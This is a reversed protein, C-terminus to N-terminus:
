EAKESLRRGAGVAYVPSRILLIPDDSPALGKALVLPDFVITDCRGESEPSIREIVLRTPTVTKHEGTWQVAANNIDDESNALIATMDWSVEGRKLSSALNDFFFDTGTDVNIGHQKTPTFTWRFPTKTGAEDVFYFSNVGNYTQDEYPKVTKDKKAMHAGFTGIEPYKQKVKAVADKGLAKAQNLALFAEPTAVPFFDLTNLAMRSNNGDQDLISLGIGVGGFQNDPAENNGGSHSLRGIVRSPAKFMTANSYLAISSEQPALHGEFCFGKTHNRRKGETVGFQAEFADIMEIPFTPRTEASTPFSTVSALLTTFWVIRM